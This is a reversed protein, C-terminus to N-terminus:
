EGDKNTPKLAQAARLNRAAENLFREVDADGGEYEVDGWVSWLDRIAKGALIIQRQADELRQHLEKRLRTIGQNQEYITRADEFVEVATDKDVGPLTLKPDLEHITGAVLRNELEAWRDSGVQEMLGALQDAVHESIRM